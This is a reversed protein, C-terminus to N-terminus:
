IDPCNCDEYVKQLEINTLDEVYNKIKRIESPPANPKSYVSAYIPPANGNEIVCGVTAMGYRNKRVIAVVIDPLNGTIFHVQFLKSRRPNDIVAHVLVEERVLHETDNTAYAYFTGTVTGDPNESIIARGCRGGEFSRWHIIWEGLIELLGAEQPYRTCTNRVPIYTLEDDAHAIIFIAILFVLCKMTFMAKAEELVLNSQIKM